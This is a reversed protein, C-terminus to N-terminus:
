ATKKNRYWVRLNLNGDEEFVWPKMSSPAKESKVLYHLYHFLEEPCYTDNFKKAMSEAAQGTAVKSKIAKWINVYDVQATTKQPATYLARLVLLARQIDVLKKFQDEFIVRDWSKYSSKTHADDYLTLKQKFFGEADDTLSNKYTTNLENCVDRWIQCVQNAHSANLNWKPPVTEAGEFYSTYPM